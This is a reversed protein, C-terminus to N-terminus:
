ITDAVKRFPKSIMALSYKTLFILGQSFKISGLLIFVGMACLVLGAGFQFIASPINHGLLLFATIICFPLSLICLAAAVFLSIAVAWVSIYLCLVTAALSIAIPVWIICTAALTVTIWTKKRKVSVGANPSENIIKQAIANVDELAIVADEESLGSEIHDDILEEYFDLAKQREKTPIHSLLSDLKKLFECKTM